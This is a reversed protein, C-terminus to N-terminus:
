IEAEGEERETMKASAADVASCPVTFIGAEVDFVSEEIDKRYKVEAKLKQETINGKKDEMILLIEEYLPKIGLITKDVTLLYYWVDLTYYREVSEAEETFGDAIDISVYWVTLFLVASTAIFLVTAKTSQGFFSTFFAHVVPSFIAFIFFTIVVAIIFHKRNKKKIKENLEAVYKDIANKHKEAREKNFLIKTNKM